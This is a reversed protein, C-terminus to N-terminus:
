SRPAGVVDILRILEIVSARDAGIAVLGRGADTWAALNLGKVEQVRPKSPAPADLPEILLGVRDGRENEYVVFAASATTGPAIRGGLQRLTNPPLRPVVVGRAFQPTFWKTLADPDSARFEVPTLAGQAGFASYAALGAASLQDRPWSPGGLPAVFLLAAVFVLLAVLGRALRSRPPPPEVPPNRLAAAEIRTPWSRPEGSRALAAARTETMWVPMNENSNRGLDIAARSSPTAGYAARIAVNQAEWLAVERRLDAEDRLRAEFARREAPGLCNDVYAFAAAADFRDTV